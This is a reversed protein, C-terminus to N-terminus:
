AVDESLNMVREVVNATSAAMLFTTLSGVPVRRGRGAHKVAAKGLEDPSADFAAQIGQKSERSQMSKLLDNASQWGPQSTPLTTKSTKRKSVLAIPARYANEPMIVATGSNIAHELITYFEKKARTARVRTVRLNRSRDKQPDNGSKLFFASLADRIWYRVTVHSASFGAQRMKESTKRFTFGQLYYAVALREREPLANISKEFEALVEKYLFSSEIDTHPDAIDLDEVPQDDFDVQRRRLTDIVRNRAITRVWAFFNGSPHINDPKFNQLNQWVQLRVDNALEDADQATRAHAM